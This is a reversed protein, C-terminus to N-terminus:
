RGTGGSPKSVEELVQGSLKDDGTQVALDGLSVIGAVQGSQTLVVLRRLQREEMTRAAARVDDDEHCFVVDPTMVDSVRTTVPDLGEATARVTLDRDTVMGVLREGDSVPLPGVDLSKMMEAAQQLTADPRVTQVDPSMVEYVKM